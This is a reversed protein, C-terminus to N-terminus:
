TVIAQCNQQIAAGTLILEYFALCQEAKIIGRVSKYRWKANLFKNWYHWVTPLYKSFIISSCDIRQIWQAWDWWVGQQKRVELQKSHREKMKKMWEFPVCGEPEMCLEMENMFSGSWQSIQGIFKLLSNRQMENPMQPPVPRQRRKTHRLTLLTNGSRHTGGWITLEKLICVLNYKEPEGGQAGLLCIPVDRSWFSQQVHFSNIDCLFQGPSWDPGTWECSQLPQCTCLKWTLSAPQLDLSSSVSCGSTVPLLTAPNSCM